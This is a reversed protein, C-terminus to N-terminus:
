HIFISIHTILCRGFTTLNTLEQNQVLFWGFISFYANKPCLNDNNVGKIGCQGGSFAKKVGGTHTYFDVPTLFYYEFFTNLFMNKPNQGNKLGKLDYHAAGGCRRVAAGGAFDM